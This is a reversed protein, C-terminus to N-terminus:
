SPPELQPCAEIFAELTGARDMEMVRVLNDTVHAAIERRGAEGAPHFGAATNEYDIAQAEIMDRMAPARNPDDLRNQWNARYAAACDAYAIWAPPEASCAALIASLMLAGRMVHRRRGGEGGSRM